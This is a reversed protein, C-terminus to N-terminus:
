CHCYGLGYKNSEGFYNVEARVYSSYTHIEVVFLMELAICMTMNKM